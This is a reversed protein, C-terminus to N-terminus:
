GSSVNTSLKPPGSIPPSAEGGTPVMGRPVVLRQREFDSRQRLRRHANVRLPAFPPPRRAAATGRTPSALFLVGRLGGLTWMWWTTSGGANMLRWRTEDTYLDDM